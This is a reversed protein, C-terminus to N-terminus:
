RGIREAIEGITKGDAWLKAVLDYPFPKRKQRGMGKKVIQRGCQAKGPLQAIDEHRWLRRASVSTQHQSSPARGREDRHWRHVRGCRLQLRPRVRRDHAKSEERTGGETRDVAQADSSAM